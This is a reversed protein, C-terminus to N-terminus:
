GCGSRKRAVLSADPTDRKPAIGGEGLRVHVLEQLDLPDLVRDAKGCILNELRSDAMQEASRDPPRRVVYVPEVLAKVVLRRTPGTRSPNDGFHLPVEPLQERANAENDRIQTM